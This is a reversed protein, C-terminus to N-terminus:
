PRTVAYNYTASTPCNTSDETKPTLLNELFAFLCYSTCNGGIGNDCIGPLQQYSYQPAPSPLPDSPIIKLYTKSSPTPSPLPRGTLNTLSSGPTIASPYFIQDTHYEELASQIFKLDSQRRADRSNKLFSTYSVLGIASLIAIISVVVLLEILTFGKNKPM